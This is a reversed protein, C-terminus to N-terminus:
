RSRRGIVGSVFHESYRNLAPFHLANALSNASNTIPAGNMGLKVFDRYLRM